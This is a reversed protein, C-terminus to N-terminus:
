QDEGYDDEDDHVGRLHIRDLGHIYSDLSHHKWLSRSLLIENLQWLVAARLAERGGKLQAGVEHMSCSHGLRRPRVLYARGPVILRAEEGESGHAHSKINSTALSITDRMWNMQRGVLGKWKLARSTRELFRDISEKSSRCVVDDGYLISTIYDSEVNASFSPPAGLSVASTRGQGIGQLPLVATSNGVGTANSAVLLNDSIDEKGENPKQKKEGALPLSGEVISAAIAATGGALSRGVFHIATRNNHSRLLHEVTSVVSNATKYLVPQVSAVENTVLGKKLRLHFPKRDLVKLTRQLRLEESEALAVLLRGSARKQPPVTEDVLGGHDGGAGGCYDPEYLVLIRMALGGKPADTTVNLLVQRNALPGDDADLDFRDPYEVM